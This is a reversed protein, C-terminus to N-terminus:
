KLGTLESVFRSLDRKNHCFKCPTNSLNINIIVRAIDPGNGRSQLYGGINNLLAM